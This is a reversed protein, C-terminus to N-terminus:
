RFSGGPTRRVGPLWRLPVRELSWCCWCRAVAGDPTDSSSEMSATPFLRELFGPARKRLYVESGGLVVGERHVAEARRSWQGNDSGVRVLSGSPERPTKGVAQMCGLLAAGRGDRCRREGLRRSQKQRMQSLSSARAREWYPHVPVVGARPLERHANPSRRIARQARHRQPRLPSSKAVRTPDLACSCLYTRCCADM